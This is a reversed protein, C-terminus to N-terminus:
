TIAPRAGTAEATSGPHERGPIAEGVAIAEVVIQIAFLSPWVRGLWRLPQRIIAPYNKLGVYGHLQVVRLGASEVLAIMSKRTFFRLHTRDLIGYDKYDWRGRLLALRNTAFAVNPLSCLVRGGPNLRSALTRLALAPEVLHELVDGFLIFDYGEESGTPIERDLDAVDVRRYGADRARQAQLPDREIGDVVVDGVERLARGLSGNWCGVDLIVGKGRARVADVFYPNAHAYADHHPVSM